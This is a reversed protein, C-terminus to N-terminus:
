KRKGFGIEAIRNVCKQTKESEFEDILIGPIVSLAVAIFIQIEPIQITKYLNDPALFQCAMTGIALTAMMLGLCRNTVFCIRQIETNRSIKKLLAKQEANLKVVLGCQTANDYVSTRTYNLYSCKIYDMLRNKYAAQVAPKIGGKPCSSFDIDNYISGSRLLKEAKKNNM